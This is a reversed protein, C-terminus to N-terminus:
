WRRKSITVTYYKSSRRLIQSIVPEIRPGFNPQKPQPLHKGHTEELQLLVKFYAVVNEKWM